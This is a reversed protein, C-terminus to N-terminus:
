LLLLIHRTVIIIGVVAAAIACVFVAGASLDKVAKIVEDRNPQIKDCIREIASNLAEASIVMAIAFAIAIWEWDEFNLVIGVLIAVIAAACHIKANHEEKVLIKLGNWAFTFSKLRAKISFHQPGNGNFKDNM